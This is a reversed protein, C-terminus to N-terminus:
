KLGIIMKTANYGLHKVLSKEYAPKLKFEELFVAWVEEWDCGKPMVIGFPQAKVSGEDHKKIPRRERSAAAYYLFDTKTFSKPDELTRNILDAASSVYIIQLDPYYKKKIEQIETDVTSNKLSYAKMGKFATSIDVMSPLDQVSSHSILVSLNSMYAPTFTMINKREQTISLPALGFIGGKGTKINNLFLSFDDTKKQLNVKLSVGKKVKVYNVFERLIDICIGDLKNSANKYVVGPTEFYTITIIGSKNRQANAWSDGTLQAFASKNSLFLLLVTILLNNILTIKSKLFLTKM